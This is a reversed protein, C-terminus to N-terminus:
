ISIYFTFIISVNEFPPSSVSNMGTIDNLYGDDGPYAHLGILSYFGSTSGINSKTGAANSYSLWNAQNNAGGAEPITGQVTPWFVSPSTIYEVTGPKSNQQIVQVNYNTISFPSGSSQSGALNKLLFFLGIGEGPTFTSTHIEVQLVALSSTTEQSVPYTELSPFGSYLFSGHVSFQGVSMIGNQTDPSFQTQNWFVSLEVNVSAASAEILTNVSGAYNSYAVSATMGILIPIVALSLIKKNM